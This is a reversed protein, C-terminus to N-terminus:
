KAVKKIFYNRSGAQHYVVMGLIDQFVVAPDYLFFMMVANGEGGMATPIHQFVCSWDDKTKGDPLLSAVDDMFYDIDDKREEGDDLEAWSPPSWPKMAM